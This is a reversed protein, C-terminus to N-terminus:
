LARRPRTATPRRSTPPRSSAPSRPPSRRRRTAARSRGASSASRRATRSSSTRRRSSTTRHVAVRRDHGLQDAMLIPYAAEDLQTSFSDPAAKGNVLSNRPMSGDPQQQRDFLFLTADRATALDGDALLGTWAEYLDRAFVERYSGFYTNGPRRGLGGAGVALRPERRDRRPLDQGRVGQDREREPLVRRRAAQPRRRSSGPSGRPPRSTLADDYTRGARARLRGLTKGFPTGLSGEAQASRRPRRPASASRSCRRATAARARGARDARRQRRARRRLDADACAVRRAPCGTARPQRRLREHGRLVARRARRVGAARLRPQGCQDRDVPDYAVPRTAPRPTSRRRTPAATARAAAVTATSPRSRLPRVLKPLGPGNAPLPTFRRSRMLLPTRPEPDTLYDTVIQYKGSKATATVKCVM